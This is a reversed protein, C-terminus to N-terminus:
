RAGVAPQGYREGDRECGKYYDMQAVACDMGFPCPTVPAPSSCASGQPHPDGLPRVSQTDSRPPVSASGRTPFSQAALQAATLPGNRATAPMMNPVPCRALLDTLTSHHETYAAARPHILRFVIALEDMRQALGTRTSFVPENHALRNRFKV